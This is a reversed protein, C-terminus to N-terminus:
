QRDGIPFVAAKCNIKLHDDEEIIEVLIDEDNLLPNFDQKAQQVDKCITLLRKLTMAIKNEYM